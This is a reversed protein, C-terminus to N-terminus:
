NICDSISKLSQYGASVERTTVKGLPSKKTNFEMEMVAQEMTQINCILRFLEQVAKAWEEKKILGISDVEDVSSGRASHDMKVLDYKGGHKM